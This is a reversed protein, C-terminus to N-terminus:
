RMQVSYKLSTEIQRDFLRYEGYGSLINNDSEARIFSIAGNGNSRNTKVDVTEWQLPLAQARAWKGLRVRTLRMDTQSVSKLYHDAPREGMFNNFHTIQASSFYEFYEDGFWPTLLDYAYELNLNLNHSMYPASPEDSGYSVMLSTSNKGDPSELKFGGGAYLPSFYLSGKLPMEAGWFFKRIDIPMSFDLFQIFRVFYERRRLRSPLWSYQIGEKVEEWYDTLWADVFPRIDAWNLTEVTLPCTVKGRLSFITREEAGSKERLLADVLPVFQVPYLEVAGSLDASILSAGARARIKGSLKEDSLNLEVASLYLPPLNEGAIFEGDTIDLLIESKTYKNGKRGSLNVSFGRLGKLMRHAPLNLRKEGFIEPEIRFLYKEPLAEPRLDEFEAQIRYDGLSGRVYGTSSSGRIQMRTDITFADVQYWPQKKRRIAFDRSNMAMRFNSLPERLIVEKGRVKKSIDALRRDFAIEGSATGSSIDIDKQFNNLLALRLKSPKFYWYGELDDCAISSCADFRGFFDGSGIASSEYRLLTQIEKGGHNLTFSLHEVPTVEQFYSNDKVNLNFRCGDCEIHYRRDKQFLSRVQDVLESDARDSTVWYGIKGDEIIVRAGDPLVSETASLLSLPKRIYVAPAELLYRGRSFDRDFSVRVGIIRVGRFLSADIGQYSIALRSLDILQELKTQFAKGNFFLMPLFDLVQWLAFGAAIYALWRLKQRAFLGSGIARLRLLAQMLESAM